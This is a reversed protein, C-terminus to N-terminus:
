GKWDAAMSTACKGPRHLHRINGGNYGCSSIGPSPNGGCEAYFIKSLFSLLYTEKIRATAWQIVVKGLLYNVTHM